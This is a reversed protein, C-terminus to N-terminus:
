KNELAALRTTLEAVTAKLAETEAYLDKVGWLALYAMPEAPANWRETENTPKSLGFAEGLVAYAQQARVGFGRHPTGTKSFDDYIDFDGLWLDSIMQRKDSQVIGTWDKVREDSTTAYITVTGNNYIAGNTGGTLNVFYYSGAQSVATASYCYGSAVNQTANIVGGAAYGGTAFICGNGGGSTTGVLLNGSTDFRAKEVFSANAFITPGNNAIALGATTPIYTYFRNAILVGNTSYGSGLLGVEVNATGNSYLSRASAAGGASANAISISSAANQTQTIDLVNSPTMGIGLNGTSSIEMAQTVTGGNPTVYFLMGAGTSKYAFLRTQSGNWDIAGGLVNANATAGTLAVAASFTAAAGTLTGTLTPSASLVMSGTGTVSNSLAVGGYTLASGLVIGGGNPQLFIPYAAATTFNQSQFYIGPTSTYGVSLGVLGDARTVNLGTGATGLAPISTGADKLTTVGGLIVGNSANFTGGVVLSATNTTGTLTPSASLVM